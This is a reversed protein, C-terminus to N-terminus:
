RHPVRQCRPLFCLCARISILSAGHSSTKPLGGGPTVVPTSAQRPLGPRPQAAPTLEHTDPSPYVPFRGRRRCLGTVHRATYTCRRRCGRAACSRVACTACPWHSPRRVIDQPAQKTRLIVARQRRKTSRAWAAHMVAHALPRDGTVQKGQLNAADPVASSSLLDINTGGLDLANVRLDLRCM